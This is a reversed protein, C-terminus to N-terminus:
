DKTISDFVISCDADTWAINGRLQVEVGLAAQLAADREAVAQNLVDTAQLAAAKAISADHILARVRWYTEPLLTIRKM